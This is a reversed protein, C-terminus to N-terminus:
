RRRTKVRIGAAALTASMSASKGQDGDAVAQVGAAEIWEPRSAAM